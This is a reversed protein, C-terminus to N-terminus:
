KLGRRDRLTLGKQYVTFVNSTNTIVVNSANVVVWATKMVYKGPDLNCKRGIFWELTVDSVVDSPEYYHFAGGECVVKTLDDTSYVKAKWNAGFSRLVARDYLLDIEDHHVSDDVHVQQVTMYRDPVQWLKQYSVVALIGLGIFGSIDLIRLLSKKM